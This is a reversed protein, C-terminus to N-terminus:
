EPQIFHILSLFDAAKLSAGGVLAGDIDAREMLGDINDPKVSGGYIIRTQESTSKDFIGALTGRLFSHVEEAQDASATQGTGIAWVPEYAIVVQQMDVATLGALGKRVQDHLIEMMAGSDRQELTEGVCLIAALGGAIVAKIKKNIFEDSEHFLQRRESHGIIVYKCGVGRLLAPSVEGTFAGSAEPYCNQAAVAIGTGSTADAVATLATFVPAVIVDVRTQNALGKKLAEVLDLAEPITNHLKWNGAIIPKRM